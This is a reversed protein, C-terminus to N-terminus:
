QLAKQVAADLREKPTLGVFEAIKVGDKFLLITPLMEIEYAEVIEPHADFDLKGVKVKGQYQKAIQEIIPAQTKCPACWVAWFDVLVPESAQLVQADFNDGTFNTVLENSRDQPGAGAGQAGPTLGQFKEVAAKGTKVVQMPVFVSAGVGGSDISVSSGIPPLDAPVQVVAQPGIFLSTFGNIFQVIAGVGIYTEMVREGMLKPRIAAIGQDALKGSGSAAALIEKLSTPDAGQAVVVADKTAVVYAIQEQTAFGGLQGLQAVVEPPADMKVRVRDVQQGDVQLANPEYQSKYTMGQGLDLGNMQEIVKRNEAIFKQPDKTAYVNVANILGGSAGLNPPFMAFQIEDGALKLLDFSSQMVKAAPFDPPMAATLRKVWDDLPLSRTNMSMTIFYPKAPLRNFGLEAGPSKAFVAAMPSGEKFQAAFNLGFGEMSADFGVVVSQGDRFLAQIMDSGLDVFGMGAAAGPQQQMAAKAQEMQMQFIPGLTPGIQSMDLFMLMDGHELVKSGLAGARAALGGATPSKYADVLAQQNSLVAYNGSKRAFQPQGQFEFPTVADPSADAIGFSAMFAKYDTVPVFALVQPEGGGLPLTPMVIAVGGSENFGKDIGLMGKLQELPQQLEPQPLNLAEAIKTTKDSLDALNPIVLVFQADTPVQKLVDPEAARVPVVLLAALIAVTHILPKVFRM